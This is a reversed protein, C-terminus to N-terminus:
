FESGAIIIQNLVIICSNNDHASTMYILLSYMLDMRKM